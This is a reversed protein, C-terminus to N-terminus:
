EQTKGHIHMNHVDCLKKKSKIKCIEQTCAHANNSRGIYVEEIIMKKEKICVVQPYRRNIKKNTRM